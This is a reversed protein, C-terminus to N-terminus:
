HQIPLLGSNTRLFICLVEHIHQALRPIKLRTQFSAAIVKTMDTQGDTRGDTGISNPEWEARVLRIDM